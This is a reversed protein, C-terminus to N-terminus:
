RLIVLKGFGKKFFQDTSGAMKEYPTGDEKTALIRYLYVGNALRDGFEDTGDWKYDTRHTGIRLPGLEAKSIERVIRGSVTMIQITMEAPVDAGTLTYVFQTSTSFPNPYNLVNSISASTIVKFVTSYAVRGAANGSRDQALVELEYEGDVTFVPKLIMEAKNKEAGATAPNFTIWSQDLALPEAQQQGPSKLYLKYVSTDSLLLYENEDVLTVIIEPESSVLDGDIIHLGDFTVDLVPPKKDTQVSFDKIVVNNFDHLEPQDKDPNIELVLRQLQELGSSAEVRAIITEESGLAQLRQYSTQENNGDDILTYKLLLSDMPYPMLNEIALELELNQGQQLTDIDPGFVANPNVAADPLGDFLVEWDLLDPSTRDRQDNTYFEMWVYPIESADIFTLSTDRTNFRELLLQEVGNRDLGYLNLYLSDMSEAEIKVGSRFQHWKTAPGILPSRMSGDIGNVLINVETNIFDAVTDAIDEGLVSDDKRYIFTYPVAGRDELLGIKTAGQDELVSFISKGLSLTDAAWSEPRYSSDENRQVTFLVVFSKSPIIEDLFRILNDRQEPTDTPFAFVKTTLSPNVTGYIGNPPNAMGRGTVPDGVWMAVGSDFNSFIWPRVSAASSGFNWRFAPQNNQDWIKNYLQVNYGNIWFDFDELSDVELGEFENDAFQWYDSQSWGDPTGEEYTFSRTEWVYGIEPALSDPSVRWYYVQRSDLPLEIAWKVVGGKQQVEKRQKLASDFFPTTDLEMIYTRESVLAVTTSAKLELESKGVLAFDKPYVPRLGNDVIYLNVGAQGSARVLSNNMEAASSPFEEVENDVDVDIYFTNLGVAAKGLNSLMVVQHSSYAPTSVRLTKVKIEDGNPLKQRIAISISDQIFQGLNLLDFALQFSDEQISIVNPSFAVSTADVTYDPGQSPHLKISPDGMLSFQQVITKIELGTLYDFSERTASIIDGIGKGYKEGGMNEYFRDAFGGLTSIFGVGRSAGFAVSAKDEYFTFREAIGRSSTFFNGSYCGLSMILPFKGFNEYNDPNDINFDFTGPSSHGFFTIVATGTNIRDFIRDSRSQQIPDTSTKYFPTVQAGFLNGEIEREMRELNSRIANQEGSNGGGGLHMINKMWAREEITQGNNVTAELAEVKRLYIRIEQPNIAAIRGVPVVAVSSTNNSLMLNDSAPFGFSPVFFTEAEIAAALGGSTRISPYERGKGIIFVYKLNPWQRHAAHIFNRISQPHRDLGYGFQQYINEVEIIQTTYSGGATSSRYDAYAQVQDQNEYTRRLEPATLILFEASQGLLNPFSVNQPPSLNEASAEELLVLSRQESSAPLIAKVIGNEYRCIIRLGNTLDYLIPIGTSANFDVIELYKTTNGAEVEFEFIKQNRADPLSPYQVQYFAISQEDRDDAQGEFRIDIGDDTLPFNFDPAKVAIDNYSREFYTGGDIQVLQQHSGEGVGFRATFRASPGGIYAGPLNVSFDQTTNGSQLLENINRNGYGEAVDYHSFYITIGSRRTYNKMFEETFVEGTIQWIWEEKAPPNTLDSNITEMRTNSSTNDWTLFYASTDTVLSYLPNLQNEDPDEFLYRDFAGRNQEGWFLLYDGDTFDGPTSVHIPIEQGMHFLRLRDGSLDNLVIGAQQLATADLRYLGDKAIPIKYYSQDYNIWENGYLTDTGVLMQSFVPGSLTLLVLLHLLKRM